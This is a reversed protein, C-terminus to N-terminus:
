KIIRQESEIQVLLSDQEVRLSQNQAKLFLLKEESSEVLSGIRLLKKSAEQM